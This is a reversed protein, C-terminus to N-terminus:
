SYGYLPVQDLLKQLDEAGLAPGPGPGAPMEASSSPPWDALHLVRATNSSALAPSNRGAM